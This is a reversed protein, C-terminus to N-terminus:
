ANKNKTGVFNSSSVSSDGFIHRRTRAFVGVLFSNVAHSPKNSITAIFKFARNINSANFHRHTKVVDVAVCVVLLPPIKPFTSRTAFITESNSALLAFSKTIPKPPKRRNRFFSFSSSSSHVFLSGPTPSSCCCCCCCCCCCRRCLTTSTSLPPPVVITISSLSSWCGNPPFSARLGYRARPNVILAM